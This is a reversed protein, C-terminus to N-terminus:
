APLLPLKNNGITRVCLRVANAVSSTKLLERTDDNNLGTRLVGAPRDRAIKVVSFLADLLGKPSVLV